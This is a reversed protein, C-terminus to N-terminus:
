AEGPVCDPSTTPPVYSGAALQLILLYILIKM